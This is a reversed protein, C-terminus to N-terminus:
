RMINVAYTNAWPVSGQMDHCGSPVREGSCFFFSFFYKLGHFLKLHSDSYEGLYKEMAFVTPQDLVGSYKCVSIGGCFQM